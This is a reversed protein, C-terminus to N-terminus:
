MAPEMGGMLDFVNLGGNGASSERVAPRAAPIDLKGALERVEIKGEGEKLEAEKGGARRLVFMTTGAALLAGATLWFASNTSEATVTAPATVTTGGGVTGGPGSPPGKDIFKKTLWPAFIGFVVGIAGMGGVWKLAEIGYELIKEGTTKPVPVGAFVCLSQMLANYHLDDLSGHDAELSKIAGIFKAKRSDGASLALSGTDEPNVCFFVSGAQTKDVGFIRNIEERDKASWEVDKGEYSDPLLVVNGADCRGLTDGKYKRILEMNMGPTKPVTIDDKGNQSKFVAETDTESVLAAVKGNPYTVLGNFDLQLKFKASDNKDEKDVGMLCLLNKQGGVDISSAGFDMCKNGSM